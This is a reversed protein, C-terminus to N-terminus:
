AGIKKKESQAFSSEHLQKYLGKQDILEEHTGIQIIKGKDIAVIMDAQQITSLRHAIVLTTRNKMLVELAKKVNSETAGDLASTAEDLLLIPADKLIARAIAIRQKQGGSLRVGREGIQTDYGDPLSLIFDHICASRCAAIIETKKYMRVLWLYIKVSTGAFLFTEQPVYAIASRLDAVSYEEVPVDNIIIKGELPQYFGQLLNFLTSKGAGSPGVFAVVKGPPINLDFKDFM